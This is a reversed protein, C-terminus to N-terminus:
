KELFIDREMKLSKIQSKKKKTLVQKIENTNVM